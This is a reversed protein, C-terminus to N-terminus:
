GSATTGTLNATGGVGDFVYKTFEVSNVVFPFNHIEGNLTVSIEEQSNVVVSGSGNFDYQDSSAGEVTLTTGPIYQIDDM